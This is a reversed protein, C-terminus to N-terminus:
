QGWITKSFLKLIAFASVMIFIGILGWLMHQKGKDRATDSEAGQIFEVVGFLFLLVGGAVLLTILPNVFTVAIKQVLGSADM